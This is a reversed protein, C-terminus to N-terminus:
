HHYIFLFNLGLPSIYIVGTMMVDVNVVGYASLNISLWSLTYDESM